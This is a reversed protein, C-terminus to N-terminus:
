KIEHSSIKKARKYAAAIASQWQRNFKIASLKNLAAETTGKKSKVMQILNEPSYINRVSKYYALSGDLLHFIIEEAQKKQFGLSVASKILADIFLFVYAPGSGSLATIKNLDDESKVKFNYGFASFLQNILGTQAPTLRAAGSFWAIVGQGVQLPLNPMVRIVNPSNVIKKINKVNVGAMISIFIKNNAKLPPLNYFDQPKICLFIIDCKQTLQELSNLCVAAKIKKLGLSYIFFNLSNKTEGKILLGFIARGMNGLGFIGINTNNNM